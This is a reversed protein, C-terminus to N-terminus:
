AALREVSRKFKIWERTKQEYGRKRIQLIYLHKSEIHVGGLDKGMSDATITQVERVHTPDTVTLIKDGRQFADLQRLEPAFITKDGFIRVVFPSIEKPTAGMNYARFLLKNLALPGGVEIISTLMVLHWEKTVVDTGWGLLEPYLGLSNLATLYEEGAELYKPPLAEVAM